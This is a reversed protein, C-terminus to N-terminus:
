SRTSVDLARERRQNAGGTQELRVKSRSGVTRRERGTRGARTAACPGDADGRRQTLARSYGFRQRGGCALPQPSRRTGVRCGLPSTDFFDYHAPEGRRRTDARQRLNRFDGNSHRCNRRNNQKLRENEGNAGQDNTWIQRELRTTRAHHPLSVRHWKLIGTRRSVPNYAATVPSGPQM